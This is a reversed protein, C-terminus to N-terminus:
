IINDAEASKYGFITYTGCGMEVKEEWRCSKTWISERWLSDLANFIYSYIYNYYKPITIIVDIFRIVPTGQVVNWSIKFWEYEYRIPLFKIRNSNM